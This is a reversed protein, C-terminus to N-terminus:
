TRTTEKESEATIQQTEGECCSEMVTTCRPCQAHGAVRVPRVLYLCSPCQVARDWSM